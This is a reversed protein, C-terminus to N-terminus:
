KIYSIRINDFVDTVDPTIFTHKGGFIFTHYKNFLEIIFAITIDFDSHTLTESEEMTDKFNKDYHAIRKDRLEKFKSLHKELSNLDNKIDNKCEIKISNNKEIATLLTKLTIGQRNNELLRSIRMIIDIEYISKLWKLFIDPLGSHNNQMLHIFCDNIFVLNSIENSLLTFDDKFCM